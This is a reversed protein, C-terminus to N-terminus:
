KQTKRKYIDDFRVIDDEELYDGNQVEIIQLPIRGPNELRHKTSMPIYTSENPHVDYIRDGNTVRATGAVVIWHESRHHHMQHSLKATPKVEIKKIKFRDGLELITYSGWPRYVTRHTAYERAGRKKLIDVIKRVEQAKDRHCILTADPTDVVIMDNLGVAAILREGGYLISSKNQISILNGKKINKDRDVPLVHDLANWSGVDSWGMHVPVIAVRNTKELIGYDISESKIGSFVAKTVERAKETGIAKDIKVLSDYLKPMHKKIARLITEAQWIFIGSNWYYNGDRLYKLAMGRDPKEKFAKVNYIGQKIRGGRSIYGYGTEPKDPKIGITVLFGDESAGAGLLVASHFKKSNKIIHDSPLVVMVAKPNIRRLYLAALGVAPATNRAEPEIIFQKDWSLGTMSLLQLNISEVQGSNTVIYTRKFSVVPSMRSVTAQILTKKHSGIHLLQKPTELRSLPWFRTGSGGAIIVSFLNNSRQHKKTPKRNSVKKTM